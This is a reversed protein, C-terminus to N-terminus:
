RVSKELKFCTRIPRTEHGFLESNLLHVSFLVRGQLSDIMIVDRNEFNVSHNLIYFSSYRLFLVHSKCLAFINTFQAQFLINEFSKMKLSLLM